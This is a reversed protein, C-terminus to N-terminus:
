FPWNQPREGRHRGRISTNRFDRRYATLFAESCTKVRFVYEVKRPRRVHRLVRIHRVLNKHGILNIPISMGSKCLKSRM